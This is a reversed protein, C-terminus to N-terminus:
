TQPRRPPLASRVRRCRDPSRFPFATLSVDIETEQVDARGTCLRVSRLPIRRIFRGRGGRCSASVIGDMRRRFKNSKVKKTYIENLMEGARGTPTEGYHSKQSALASLTSCARTAWVKMRGSFTHMAADEDSFRKSPIASPVTAVAVCKRGNKAASKQSNRDNEGALAIRCRM